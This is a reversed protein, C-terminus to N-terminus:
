MAWQIVHVRHATVTEVDMRELKISLESALEQLHELENFGVDLEVSRWNMTSLKATIDDISRNLAQLQQQLMGARIQFEKRQQQRTDDLPARPRPDRARPNPDRMRPIPYKEIDPKLNVDDVAQLQLKLQARYQAIQQQKARILQQLRDAEKSPHKLIGSQANLQYQLGMLEQNMMSQNPDDALQQEVAADVDSPHKLGQEITLFNTMLEVLQTELEAKAKTAEALERLLLKSEADNPLAGMALGQSRANQQDLKARIEAKVNALKKALADREAARNKRDYAADVAEVSKRVIADVLMQLQETDQGADKMRVYVIDSDPFSGVDLHDIVWQLPDNQAAIIPLDAIEPKDIAPQVVPVSKLMAVLTRVRITKPEGSVQLLATTSNVTEIGTKAVPVPIPPEVADATPATSQLSAAASATPSEEAAAVEPTARLGLAISTACVLLAFSLSGVFPSPWREDSKSEHLMAIRRMLLPRSMFVGLGAISRTPHKPRLALGALVTAYRRHSGFVRAALRDAAFEQELRLRRGLWHVLPHYFHAAVALQGVLWLPFHRQAVHSLEHALVARHEETSWNHWHPPLLVLPHRWGITAAVGLTPVEVLQVTTAIRLERALSDFTDLLQADDIPKSQRRYRHVFALGVFFRGIGIAALLGAGCAAFRWWEQSTGAIFPESPPADKLGASRLGLSPLATISRRLGRGDSSAGPTGGQDTAADRPPADAVTVPADTRSETSWSKGAFDWRPWPSLCTLTMLGVIALSAVLLLVNRNAGQRRVLGYVMLASTAVLTVQVVCWIYSEAVASWNVSNM